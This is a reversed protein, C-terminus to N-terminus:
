NTVKIFKNLYSEALLDSSDNMPYTPFDLFYSQASIAAFYNDDNCNNPVAMFVSHEFFKTCLHKNEFLRFLKHKITHLSFIRLHRGSKRIKRSASITPPQCILLGM